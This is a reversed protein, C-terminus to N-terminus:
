HEITGLLSLEDGNLLDLLGWCARALKAFGRLELKGRWMEQARANDARGFDIQYRPMQNHGSFNGNKQPEFM